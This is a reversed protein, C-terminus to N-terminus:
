GTAREVEIIELFDTVIKEQKASFYRICIAMYKVVSFRCDTSEDVILSFGESGVDNILQTLLAPPIVNRILKSCKTRHIKLNELTSGKGLVSLLEGLHDISNVNSHTAVYV